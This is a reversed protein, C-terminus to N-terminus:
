FQPHRPVPGGVEFQLLGAEEEELTRSAGGRRRDGGGSRESVGGHHEGTSRRHVRGGRSVERRRVGGHGGCAGAGGSGKHGKAVPASSEVERHPGVGMAIRKRRRRRRRIKQPRRPLFGRSSM